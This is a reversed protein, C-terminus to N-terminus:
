RRGHVRRGGDARRPRALAPRQTRDPRDPRRRRLPLGAITPSSTTAPVDTSASCTAPGARRGAIRAADVRGGRVSGPAPLRWPRAGPTAADSLSAHEARDTSDPPPRRGPGSSMRTEGRRWASFLGDPRVLLVASCCSWCPSRRLRRQGPLRDRLVSLGLALGGVVAGPPSDLGGLVAATFATVFVLDMANPNCASSPRCSWCPPWRASPPPWRGASRACAPGRQRGLLRSSRPRSRRRGCGCASRPGASCCRWGSWWRSGRSRVRLHRVALVARYGGVM